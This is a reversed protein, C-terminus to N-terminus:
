KGWSRGANYYVIAKGGDFYSYVDWDLTIELSQELPYYYLDISFFISTDINDIDRFNGDYLDITICRDWKKADSLSFVEGTGTNTISNDYKDYVFEVDKSFRKELFETIVDSYEKLVLYKFTLEEDDPMDIEIKSGDAQLSGDLYEKDEKYNMVVHYYSEKEKEFNSINKVRAKQDDNLTAYASEIEEFMSDIDTYKYGSKNNLVDYFESPDNMISVLNDIKNIVDQTQEDPKGLTCSSLLLASLLIPLVYSYIKKMM